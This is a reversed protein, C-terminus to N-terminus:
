EFIKFLYGPYLNVQLLSVFLLYIVATSVISLIIALRWREKAWFRLILLLFIPIAYVFGVLYIFLAFGLIWLIIVRERHRGELASLESGTSVEVKNDVSDKMKLEKILTYITLLLGPIAVFLPARRAVPNYKMAYFIATCFVLLIVIIFIIREKKM